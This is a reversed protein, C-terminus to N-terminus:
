RRAAQSADAAAGPQADSPRYLAGPAWWEELATRALPQHASGDDFAMIDLFATVVAEQDKSVSALRPPERDPPRLSSLFTDIVMSSERRHRLSYEILQPLYHRWSPPDLHAMGWWYREFYSDSVADEASDFPEPDKYEDLSNGVRLTVTPTVALDAAFAEFARASLAESM